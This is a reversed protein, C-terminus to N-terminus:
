DMWTPPRIGLLRGKCAPCTYISDRGAHGPSMQFIAKKGQEYCNPCVWHPPKTGRADPKLMYALAGLSVPKLEYDEKEADWARLRTVEAELERV